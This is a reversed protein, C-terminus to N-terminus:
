RIKKNLKEVEHKPNLSSLNNFRISDLPEDNKSTIDIYFEAGFTGDEISVNTIREVDINFTIVSNISEVGDVISFQNKHLTKIPNFQDQSPM